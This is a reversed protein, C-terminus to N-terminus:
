MGGTAKTLFKVIDSLDRKLWAARSRIGELLRAIEMTAEPVPNAKFFEEGEAAKEESAFGRLPLTAVHQILGHAHQFREYIMEWHERVYAWQIDRGVRNGSLTAYAYLTDQRKVEDENHGFEIFENILEENRTQGMSILCQNKFDNTTAEKFLTKAADYEPRGGYKVSTSMVLKRLDPHVSKLDKQMLEFRAKCEKITPEHQYNGLKQLVMPRLMSVLHSEEPKAEWGVKEAIPLYLAQGFAEMLPLHETTSMLSDLEALDGTLQSWVTYDDEEKFASALELAQSTPLVGAKALAFADMLIGLRDAAPLSMKQVALALSQWLEPTYNVRYIGTQGANLKIWGGVPVALEEILMSKESLVASPLTSPTGGPAGATATIPVWWLQSDEEPTPTGKSLFRSQKLSLGKKDEPVSVTVLPYGMQATWSDMMKKVPKGSSEAIANWLDNTITNSYKHTDLYKHLGERFQSAGAAAELQRIVCAGKQYSLADFVQNIEKPDKIPVEIPHSSLLADAQLARGMDSNVFQTWVDWEPHINDVGLWGVWTAFGENLWLDSWWQMTVLNGFWQHALEHAVVYAVHQRSSASTSAEDVLLATERFTILGWNEMAGAAFDPIAILDSKPLPYPIGFYESFFSLLKTAAELAFRGQEKKGPTTYVNVEVGEKTRGSVKELESVVFALLYTSMIPTEAFKVIKCGDDRTTESIVNMNSLAVLNAPVVLTVDFKAKLAPEDWCPFAKRADIAEFQTTALWKKTGDILYSAKYFGTMSDTLVGTFELALSAPGLSVSTGGLSITITTADQDYKIASVDLATEKGAAELQAKTIKLNDGHLKIQSTPELVDLEISVSGKFDFTELNPELILAYKNPLVAKPLLVSAAM